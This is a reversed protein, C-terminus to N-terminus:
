RHSEAGAWAVMQTAAAPRYASASITPRVDPKLAALALAYEVQLGEDQSLKQLREIAGQAHARLGPAHVESILSSLETVSAEIKSSDYAVEPRTGAEVLSDLFNLDYQIRRERDLSALNAANKEARHTYRGFSLEHLLSYELRVRPGEGFEALEARRDRDLRAELRGGDEAEAQLRAYRMQALEIERYPAAELPNVALSDIRRQVEKRLVPDLQHDLALEVRFQSYCDLRAAENVAAGHRATIFSYLDAGVYYYWNTFHSIGIVGATIENIARQTMEHRRLHLKDRFDVLLLPVKPYNLSYVALPALRVQRAGQAGSRLLSGNEDLSRAYQRGSWKKLRPDTWPNKIDLLNWVSTLSTGGVQPSEDLPFWLIGYQGANGAIDISEFILGTKEACQRLLEWNRSRIREQEFGDEQGVQAARHEPVFGGLLRKRLELRAIVTDLQRKTLASDAAGTPANRLYSIAEELHLREHDIENTRYARSSARVPTTMPDLMMWQLLNRSIESVVARQPTSLNLLPATDHASVSKSGEAVRWYFFPVASLLRQGLNPRAYSLLWVYSVRNDEPDSADLADRLISVLPVGEGGDNVAHCQHCFLTLLEASDGVATVRWGYAPQEIGPLITTQLRTAPVDAACAMSTGCLLAIAILRLPKM